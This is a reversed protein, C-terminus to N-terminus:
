EENLLVVFLKTPANESKKMVSEYSDLINLKTGTEFRNPKAM